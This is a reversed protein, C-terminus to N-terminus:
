IQVGWSISHLRLSLSHILPSAKKVQWVAATAREMSYVRLVTGRETALQMTKLM